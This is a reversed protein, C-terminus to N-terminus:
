SFFFFFFFNLLCFFVNTIMKYMNYQKTRKAFHIDDVSNMLSFDDFFDGNEYFAFFFIGICNILLCSLIFIKYLNVTYFAINAIKKRYRQFNYNCKNHDSIFHTRLIHLASLDNFYFMTELRVVSSSVRQM